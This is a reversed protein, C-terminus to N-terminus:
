GMERPRAHRVGPPAGGSPARREAARGRCRAGVAAGCRPPPRTPAGGEDSRRGGRTRPSRPCPRRGAPPAWRRARCGGRARSLGARAHPRAARAGVRGRGPVHGIDRAAAEVVGRDAVEEGRDAVLVRTDEEGPGAGRSHLVHQDPPYRIEHPIRGRGRARDRRAPADRRERRHAGRAIRVPDGTRLHCARDDVERGLRM